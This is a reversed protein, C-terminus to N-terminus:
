TAGAPADRPTVVVRFDKSPHGAVTTDQTARLVYVEEGRWVPNGVYKGIQQGLSQASVNGTDRGRKEPYFFDRFLQRIPNDHNTWNVHDLVDKTKFARDPWLVKMQALVDGLSADDVDDDKQRRFLDNFAIAPKEKGEQALTAAYEIASGILRYWLKFRTQMQADRPLDLTPNGLLITYLSRMIRGRNDRTWGIPDPHNFRRNEPDPRQTDLQVILSRSSLDGRPAINNGNFVHVARASTIVTESFGLRRDSYYETTCSREVHPCTIKSGLAINDWAICAVGALFYGLIAKRRENEDTSWASMAPPEGTVAVMIMKLLTGKGVAHRAAVLFFVPREPLLSREILTLACAIIVCKGAYDTTVDCLWDETLFEMAARVADPGREDRPPVWAMAEPPIAFAIGRDVDIGDEQALLGGDALVIPATALAGIEPLVKDDRRLFPKVVWAPPTVSRGTNPHVYDVHQELAEALELATLPVIVLQEPVPETGDVDGYAHTNPVALRRRRAVVGDLNRFPRVRLPVSAVADNLAKISPVLPADKAPRKIRPRPAAGSASAEADDDDPDVKVKAYAYATAQRLRGRFKKAIGNPYRELLAVVGDVTFGMQRLVVVVSWFALAPKEVPPGEGRIVQMTDAPIDAERPDAGAGDGDSHQENQKADDTKAEPQETDTKAGGTADSPRERMAALVLALIDAVAQAGGEVFVDNFDKHPDPPMVIKTGVGVAAAAAEAGELGKGSADNDALVLFPQLPFRVRLAKAVEVLNDATFCSLVPGIRLGGKPAFKAAEVAYCTAFGEGIAVPTDHDRPHISDKIRRLNDEGPIVCGGKQSAGFANKKGGDPFIRQYGQFNGNRANFIPVALVNDPLRRLPTPDTIKKRVLYPHDAPAAPFDDFERRLEDVRAARAAADDERTPRPRGSGAEVTVAGPSWTMAPRSSSERHDFVVGDIADDTVTLKASGSQKNNYEDPFAFSHFAGDARIDHDGFGAEAMAAAFQEEVEAITLQETV